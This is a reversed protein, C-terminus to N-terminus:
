QAEGELTQVDILRATPGSKDVTVLCWGCPSSLGAFRAPAESFRLWTQRWCEELMAAARFVGDVPRLASGAFQRSCPKRVVQDAGVELRLRGLRHHGPAAGAAAMADSVYFIRDNSMLRHALRFLSGSVHIGDPIMSFTLGPTELVRWLINNHRDLQQPCANGFHTFGSAGAAVAARLVEATANTHGLSVTIGRSVALPIVELAGKREPALTLLVPDTGTLKRLEAIHGPTPDLMWEAPHAGHYDPESSLFPGELHWGAIARRLEPSQSRLTRLRALRQMMAEWSDTILTAFWRACGAQRLGRAAAIVQELSLDDQQFDVGAFGNVQLDVLAPALWVDPLPTASTATIELVRGPECRLAVPQGTKLDRAVHTQSHSM